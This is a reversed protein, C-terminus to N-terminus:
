EHWVKIINAHEPIIYKATYVELYKLIEDVNRADSKARLMMNKKCQTANNEFYYWEINVGNVLERICMEAEVRSDSDCFDIDSIVCDKNERLNSILEIFKRGFPFSASNNVSNFKYDDFIEANMEKSLKEIYFSKGSGPLGAIFIVRPM